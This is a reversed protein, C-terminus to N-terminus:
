RFLVLQRHSLGGWVSVPLRRPVQKVLGVLQGRYFFPEGLRLTNKTGMLRNARPSLVGRSLYFDMLARDVGGGLVDKLTKGAPVRVVPVSPLQRTLDAAVRVEGLEGKVAVSQATGTGSRGNAFTVKVRELSYGRPAQVCTRPVWVRGAAAVWVGRCSTTKRQVRVLVDQFGPRHRHVLDSVYVNKKWGFSLEATVARQRYEQQAQVLARALSPEEVAAAYAGGVTWVALCAAFLSKRLGKKKQM